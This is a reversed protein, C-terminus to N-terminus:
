NEKINISKHSRFSRFLNILLLNQIRLFNDGSGMTKFNPNPLLVVSSLKPNPLRVVNNMKPNPLGVVTSFNPNPLRVVVSSKRNPLRVSSLFKLVELMTM